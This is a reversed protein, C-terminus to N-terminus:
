SRDPGSVTTPRDRNKRKEKYREEAEARFVIVDQKIMSKLAILRSEIEEWPKHGVLLALQKKDLKEKHRIPMELLLRQAPETQQLSIKWLDKTYRIGSPTVTGEKYQLYPGNFEYGIKRSERIISELLPVDNNAITIRVRDYGDHESVGINGDSDVLGALWGVYNSRKSAFEEAAVIAPKLLFQFTNDL